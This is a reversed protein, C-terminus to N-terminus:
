NEGAGIQALLGAIDITRGTKVLDSAKYIDHSSNKFLVDIRGDDYSSLVVGRIGNSKIRVEDNVHIEQKAEWEAIKAAAEQATCDMFITKEDDTGFIEELKEDTIADPDDIDFYAIRQAMEWAERLGDKYTKDNKLIFKRTEDKEIWIPNAGNIDAAVCYLEKDKGIIEAEILVKDGVKLENM